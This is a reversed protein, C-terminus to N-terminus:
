GRPPQFLVGHQRELQPVADEHDRGVPHDRRGHLICQLAGEVGIHLHHRKTRPINTRRNQRRGSHLRGRRVGGGTGAFPDNGLGSSLTTPDNEPAEALRDEVVDGLPVTVGGAAARNATTTNQSPPPDVAVPAGPRVPRPKGSSAQEATLFFGKLQVDDGLRVFRRGDTSLQDERSLKGDLVWQQLTAWEQFHVVSGDTKRV